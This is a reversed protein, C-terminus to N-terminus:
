RAGPVASDPTRRRNSGSQENKRPRFSMYAALTIVLMGGAVRWPFIVVWNEKRLPQNEDYQVIVEAWFVGLSPALKWEMPFILNEGPVLVAEDRTLNAVEAGHRDRITVRIDPAIFVRGDNRIPVLIRLPKGDSVWPVVRTIGHAVAGYLLLGLQQPLSANPYQAQLLPTLSARREVEPGVKGVTIFLKTGVRGVLNVGANTPGSDSRAAFVVAVYYDGPTLGSEPITIEIEVVRDSHAPVKLVKEGLRIWSRPSRHAPLDILERRGPGRSVFDHLSVEVDVTVNSDNVFRAQRSIKDGPEAQVTLNSPAAAIRLEPAAVARGGVATSLVVVASCLAAVARGGAGSWIM